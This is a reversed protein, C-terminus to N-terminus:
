ILVGARAFPARGIERAFEEAQDALAHGVLDEEHEGLAIAAGDGAGEVENAGIREIAAIPAGDLLMGTQMELDAVVLSDVVGNLMAEGPDLGAGLAGMLEGAAIERNLGVAHM